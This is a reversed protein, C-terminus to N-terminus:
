GLSGVPSYGSAELVPSYGSAELGENNDDVDILSCTTPARLTLPILGRASMRRRLAVESADKGSASSTGNPLAPLSCAPAKSQLAEPHFIDYWAAEMWYGEIPDNSHSLQQLLMVYYSRPRAQIRDRSAAFRAGQPFALTIPQETNKEDLAVFRHYFELMSPKRGSVHPHNADFWWEGWGDAGEKPCSSKSRSRLAKFLMGARSAQLGSPFHSAASFVFYSDKRNPYPQLYDWFDVNDSLHGSQSDGSFFGWSPRVAQSFVTWPALTDYNHVIHHLFSHSERGVNPLPVAGVPPQDGKSYITFCVGPTAYDHTWSINERYQALVVEVVATARCQKRKTPLILASGSPLVLLPSLLLAIARRAGQSMM